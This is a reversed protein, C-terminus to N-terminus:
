WDKQPAEDTSTGADPGYTVSRREEGQLAHLLARADHPSLEGPKTPAADSPQKSGAPATASPAASPPAASAQPQASGPAQPTAPSPQPQGQGHGDKADAGASKGDKQGSSDQKSDDKKPDGKNPEDKKSDDKKSDDKKPDEKPPDKKEELAALKRKVLDRNFTADADKGDLALAGDYAAIAAKWKAIIAERAEPKEAAGERYLVDGQNYLIRQQLPPDAHVLAHKFDEDAVDYKGARYAADGANFALRADDPHRASEAAFAAAADDYKGAAYAKQADVTSAHAPHPLAVLALAAAAGVLAPTRAFPRPSSAAASGRGARRPFGRWRRELLADLVIGFLALSLPVEFWESYVRHTRSMADAHTLPALVEDYLRDLGHGDAGLARYSGQTAAAIARLGEEDLHSRVPAGDEGQVVGVIRGRADRSPVLEGAATGVGITEIHIGNAAAIKAEALGQGELDEGDSLLVMVKERGPETALAASAVEIGRGINTGGRAIVSTDLADLSELFAQHDLTMPSQVFADGAFAVIGVRDGPFREVLDRVALKARELRTPKVDDADMSKSTDVVVMLDVGDRAVTEWRLGRQPRALAVFGLAVALSVVVVRSWRRLRSPATSGAAGRPQLRARELLTIAQSRLREARVLLAVLVTLVGLGVGLWYPEAFHM